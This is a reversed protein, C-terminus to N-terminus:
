VNPPDFDDRGHFIEHKIEKVRKRGLVGRMAAQGRVISVIQNLTYHKGNTSQGEAPYRMSLENILDENGGSTCSQGM